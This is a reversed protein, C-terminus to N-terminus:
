MLKRKKKLASGLEELLDLACEFTAARGLVKQVIKARQEAEKNFDKMRGHRIEILAADNMRAVDMLTKSLQYFGPKRHRLLTILRSHFSESINTTTPIQSVLRGYVSWEAPKYHPENGNRGLM